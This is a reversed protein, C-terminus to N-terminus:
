SKEKMKLRLDSVQRELNFIRNRLIRHDRESHGRFLVDLLVFRRKLYSLQDSLRANASRAEELFDALVPALVTDVLDRQGVISGSTRSARIDIAAQLRRRLENTADTM